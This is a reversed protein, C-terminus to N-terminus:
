NRPYVTWVHYEIITDLAIYCDLITRLTGAAQVSTSSYDNEFINGNQGAATVQVSYNGSLASPFVRVQVWCVTTDGNSGEQLTLNSCSAYATCGAIFITKQCGTDLHLDRQLSSPNSQFLAGDFLEATECLDRSPGDRKHIDLNREMLYQTPLLDKQPPRFLCKLGCLKDSASGHRSLGPMPPSSLGASTHAVLLLALALFMPSCGFLRPNDM